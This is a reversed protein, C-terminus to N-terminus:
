RLAVTPMPETTEDIFLKRVGELVRLDGKLDALYEVGFFGGYIIFAETDGTKNVLKGGRKALHKKGLHEAASRKFRKVALRKHGNLREEVIVQVHRFGATLKEHM